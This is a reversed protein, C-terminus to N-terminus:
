GKGWGNETLVAPMWVDYEDMPIDDRLMREFCLCIANGSSHALFRDYYGAGHGLRKGGTSASVCPVVILDLEEASITETTVTPELIEIM